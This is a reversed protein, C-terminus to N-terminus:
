SNQLATPRDIRSRQSVMLGGMNASTLAVLIGALVDSAYHYEDYVAGVCILCLSAWVPPAIRPLWRQAALACLMALGVHSSPLANGHVGAEAQIFRVLRSFVWGPAPSHYGALAHRPGETPFRLYVVFCMFYMLVSSLILAHFPRKERRGYLLGAVVPFLPYYSFYGLDMLESLPRSALRSFLLNPSVTFFRQELTIIHPDQWHHVMILSFRSIEEFSFIFMALPYWDHLFELATSRDRHVAVLWTLAGIVVHGAIITLTAQGSAIALVLVAVLYVLYLRDVANLAM